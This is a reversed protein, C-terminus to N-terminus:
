VKSCSESFHSEFSPGEFISLSLNRIWGTAQMPKVRVSNWMYICRPSVMGFILPAGM